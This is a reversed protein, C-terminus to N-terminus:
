DGVTPQHRFLISCHHAFIVLKKAVRHQEDHRGPGNPDRATPQEGGRSEDSRAGLTRMRCYECCESRTTSGAILKQVAWVRKPEIRAESGSAIPQDYGFARGESLLVRKGGRSNGKVISLFTLFPRRARDSRGPKISQQRITKQPANQCGPGDRSGDRSPGHEGAHNNCWVCFGTLGAIERASTSPGRKLLVM